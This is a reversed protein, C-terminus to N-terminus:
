NGPPLSFDGQARADSHYTEGNFIATILAPIAIRLQFKLGSFHLESGSKMVGSFLEKNQGNETLAVRVWCDDTARLVLNDAVAPSAVPVAGTATATQAASSASTSAPSAPVAVAQAAAVPEADSTVPTAKAVPTASDGAGDVAVAKAVPVEDKKTTPAAAAQAAQLQAIKKRADPLVLKLRMGLIAAVSAIIAVTFLLALGRPSLLKKWRPEVPICHVPSSALYVEEGEVALVKDLEHLIKAENLGLSKAYIRVFGRVYAPAPFKGYEEGELLLIQQEKIKTAKAAAKPTWGRAHRAERM